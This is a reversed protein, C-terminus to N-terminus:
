KITNRSKPRKEAIYARFADLLDRQTKAKRKLAGMMAKDVTNRAVIHYLWTKYKQGSRRIRRWLQEYDELDWTISHLIVARGGGQLNLGHAILHTNAIIREINGKNWEEELEILKKMPMGSEVYPTDKGLRAILRAADHLFDVAVITPKGSLEDLLEEVADTKEDHLKKWERSKADTYIGGNAVQRCKMSSVAANAAKVVEDDVLAILHEELNDYVKRAAPPLEIEIEAPPDLGVIPPLKLHDKESIRHVLPSLRSYIKKEANKQPVWTYGMYGTPLFYTRRYQTIYQGLAAGMDLIYIQGFLDLLGNPAPTGTLIVRRKFKSLQDKLIKFQETNSHKFRTSEDVVLMDYDWENRKWLSSFLWRLGAPNIVDVDARRELAEDKKPGHLVEMSLSSFEDWKDREKPWVLYCPRLPSIVLTRFGKIESKLVKIAALAVSTKRMGPDWIIGAGAHELIFRVGELMYPEPVWKM